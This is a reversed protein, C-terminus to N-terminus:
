HNILRHLIRQRADLLTNYTRVSFPEMSWTFYLRRTATRLGAILIARRTM